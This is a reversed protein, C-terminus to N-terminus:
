DLTLRTRFIGFATPPLSEVGDSIESVVNLALRSIITKVALPIAFVLLEFDSRSPLSNLVCLCGSRSEKMVAVDTQVTRLSIDGYFVTNLLKRAVAINAKGVNRGSKIKEHFDHLYSSYRKTIRGFRLSDNSQSVRPATGIYAALNGPKPFDKIDRIAALFAAVSLVGIGQHIDPEQLGSTNRCSRCNGRELMKLSRRIAELQIAMAQLTAREVKSWERSNVAREFGVKSALGNKKIKAGHGNFMTYAKNVYQVKQKMMQDRIGIASALEAHVSEKLRTEPLM